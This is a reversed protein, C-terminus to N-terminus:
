NKSTMKPSIEPIDLEKSVSTNSLKPEGFTYGTTLVPDGFTYGSRLAPDGFTFGSRLTPFKLWHSFPTPDDLLLPLNFYNSLPAADTNSM